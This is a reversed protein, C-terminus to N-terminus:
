PARSEPLTRGAANLFRLVEYRRLIEIDKETVEIDLSFAFPKLTSSPIRSVLGLQTAIKM